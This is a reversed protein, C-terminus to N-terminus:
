NTSQYAELHHELRWFREDRWWQLYGLEVKSRSKCKTIGAPTKGDMGAFMNMMLDMQKKHTDMIDDVHKKHAQEVKKVSLKLGAM